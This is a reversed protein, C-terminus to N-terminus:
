SARSAFAYGARTSGRPPALTHGLGTVNESRSLRLGLDYILVNILQSLLASWTHCQFGGIDLCDREDIQEFPKTTRLGVSAHRIRHPGARTM